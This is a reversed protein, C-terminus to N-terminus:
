IRLCCHLIGLTPPPAQASATTASGHRGAAPPPEVADHVVLMTVIAPMTLAPPQGPDVNQTTPQCHQVCLGPQDADRMGASSGAAADAMMAACPMQVQADVAQPCAYASTAIQTFLLAFMIWGSLWRRLPRAFAM